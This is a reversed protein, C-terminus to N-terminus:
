DRHSNLRESATEIAFLMFPTDVFRVACRALSPLASRDGIEALVEVAAACVNAQPDKEIITCLLEQAQQANLERALDCGLIRVDSDSDSLLQDLHSAILMPASRLADLAGTRKDADDSRLQEILADVSEPSAIATLATLIAERVRADKEVELAQKLFAVSSPIASADRAAAWRTDASSSALRAAVDEDSSKDARVIDSAQRILPM